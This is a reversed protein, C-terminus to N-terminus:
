RVYPMTYNELSEVIAKGKINKIEFLDIRIWTLTDDGFFLNAASICDGDNLEYVRHDHAPKEHLIHFRPLLKGRDLEKQFVVYFGM